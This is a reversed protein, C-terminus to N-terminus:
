TSPRPNSDVLDPYERALRAFDEARFHNLGYTAYNMQKWEVSLNPFMAAVGGDKFYDALM